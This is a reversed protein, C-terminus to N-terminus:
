YGRLFLDPTTLDPSPPPWLNESIIRDGFFSAILAMSINSNRCTAGDQKLYGKRLEVDDLQEVFEDTFWISMIGPSHVIFVQFWRCYTVRKHKDAEQVCPGGYGQLAKPSCREYSEPVTLLLSRDRAVFAKIVYQTVVGTTGLCCHGHASSIFSMTELKRALITNREPLKRDGYERWYAKQIEKISNIM